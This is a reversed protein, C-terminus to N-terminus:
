PLMRKATSLARAASPQAGRPRDGNADHVLAAIAEDETAALAIHVLEELM